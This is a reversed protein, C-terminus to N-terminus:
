RRPPPRETAPTISWSANPPFDGAGESGNINQNRDDYAIEPPAIPSTAKGTIGFFQNTWNKSEPRKGDSFYFNNEAGDFSVQAPANVWRGKKSSWSYIFLSGSHHYKYGDVSVKVNSVCSIKNGSAVGWLSGTLVVGNNFTYSFNYTTATASAAFLLSTACLIIAWINM